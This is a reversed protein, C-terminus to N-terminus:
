WRAPSTAPRPHPSPGAAVANIRVGAPSFDSAWARTMAALAGKAAGYAAGGPM